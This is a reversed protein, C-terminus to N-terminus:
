FQFIVQKGTEDQRIEYKIGYDDIKKRFEYDTEILGSITSAAHYIIAHEYGFLRAVKSPGLNTNQLISCFIIQKKEMIERKGNKKRLQDSNIDLKACLETEIRGAKIYEMKLEQDKAEKRLQKLYNRQQEKTWPAILNIDIDCM